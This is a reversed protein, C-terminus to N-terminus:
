HEISCISKIQDPASLFSRLAEVVRETLQEQSKAIWDSFYRAKLVLWLREIPNYDPSYPPLYFPEINRWELKKTKHWTANDLVMIIKRDGIERNVEDLFIQFIDTKVFPM